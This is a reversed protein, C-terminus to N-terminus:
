SAPKWKMGALVERENSYVSLHAMDAVRSNFRQVDAESIGGALHNFDPSDNIMYAYRPSIAIYLDMYVPAEGPQLSDISSHMNIVPNDSTVFPILTNNVIAVKHSDKRSSYFAWGSNLGLMFNVYWWNKKSLHAYFKGKPTDPINELVAKLTRERFFKTRTIQHGLYCCFDLMNRDNDLSKFHGASLDNLVNLAGREFNTHVDELANFELAAGATLMESSSKSENAKEALRSRIIFDGLFDEHLKKLGVASKEIWGSLYEVDRDDLTSIKYFGDEFSLGNANSQAVNGKPTVYFVGGGEDWSRLYHAWVYHHRRKVLIKKTM